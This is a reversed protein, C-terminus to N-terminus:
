RKLFSALAPQHIAVGVRKVRKGPWQTKPRTAPTTERGSGFVAGRGGGMGVSAPRSSPVVRTPAPASSSFQGFARKPAKSTATSQSGASGRKSSSGAPARHSPSGSETVPPQDALTYDLSGALISNPPPRCVKAHETPLAAATKRQMPAAFPNLVPARMPPPSPDPDLDAEFALQAGQANENLDGAEYGPFADDPLDDIDDSGEEGGGVSAEWWSSTSAAGALDECDGSGDGMSRSALSAGGAESLAAEDDSDLLQVHFPRAPPPAAYRSQVHPSPPAEGSADGFVDEEEDGFQGLVPPMLPKHRQAAGQSLLADVQDNMEDRKRRLRAGTPEPGSAKQSGGAGSWGSASGATSHHPVRAASGSAQFGSIGEARRVNFANGLPLAPAPRPVPVAGGCGFVWDRAEDLPIPPGICADLDGGTKQKFDEESPPPELPVVAGEQNSWVRQHLFTSLAQQFNAEYGEPVNIAREHVRLHKIVRMGDKLKAMLKNATKIGLGRPSDLYDVGCLICMELLMRANFGRLSFGKESISWLSSPEVLLGKGSNRDLKLLVRCGYAVLDSDETVICHVDEHRALYALQADAEYPARMVEVGEVTRLDAMAASVMDDTVRVARRAADEQMVRMEALSAQADPLGGGSQLDAELQRVHEDHADLDRQARARVLRRREHEENKAPLRKGDFVVVVHVGHSRLLNAMKRCYLIHAYTPTGAVLEMACSYTGRHLWVNGDVAVRKNKFESLSTRTGARKLFASLGTVGM